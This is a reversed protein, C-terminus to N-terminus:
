NPLSVPWNVESTKRVGHGRVSIHQWAWKTKKFGFELEGAQMSSVKVM